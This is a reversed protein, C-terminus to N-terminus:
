RTEVEIVPNPPVAEPDYPFAGDWRPNDVDRYTVVGNQDTNEFVSSCRKNQRMRKYDGMEGHDFWEEESGTLPGLPKGCLLRNLVPIMVSCAGGSDWHKFFTEMIALVAVKDKEEFGARTMEDLAQDCVSM